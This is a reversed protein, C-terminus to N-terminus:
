DDDDPYITNCVFSSCVPFNEALSAAAAGVTSGSAVAMEGGLSVVIISLKFVTLAFKRCHVKTFRLRVGATYKCLGAGDVGRNLCYLLSLLSEKGGQQQNLQLLLM